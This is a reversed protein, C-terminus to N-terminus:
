DNLPPVVRGDIVIIGKSETGASPGRRDGSSDGADTGAQGVIAIQKGSSDLLSGLVLGSAISGPMETDPVAEEGTKFASWFGFGGLGLVIVTGVALSRHTLWTGISAQRRNSSRLDEIQLGVILGFLVGSINSFLTFAAGGVLDLRGLAVAIGLAAAVPMLSAAVVIGVMAMSDKKVIVYAMAVGAALAVIVDFPSISTRLELISTVSRDPTLYAVAAAAVTSMALSATLWGFALAGKKPQGLLVAVGVQAIPKFLPALVMSGVVVATSNRLLGVAALVGAIVSLIAFTKTLRAGDAVFGEIEDTGAVAEEQDGDADDCRPEIVKPEFVAYHEWHECQSRLDERVAELFVDPDGDECTIRLVVREGDALRVARHGAEQARSELEGARDSTIVADIVRM